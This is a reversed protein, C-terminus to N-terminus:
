KACRVESIKNQISNKIIDFPIKSFQQLEKQEQLLNELFSNSFSLIKDLILNSIEPVKFDLDWFIRAYSISYYNEGYKSKFFHLLEKRNGGDMLAIEDDLQSLKFEQIHKLPVELFKFGFKGRQKFYHQLMVPKDNLFHECIKTWKENMPRITTVKVKRLVKAVLGPHSFSVIVM